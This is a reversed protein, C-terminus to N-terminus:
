RQEGAIGIGSRADGSSSPHIPVDIAQQATDTGAVDDNEVDEVEVPRSRVGEDVGTDRAHHVGRRRDGPAIGVETGLHQHGVVDDQDVVGTRLDELLDLVTGLHAQM